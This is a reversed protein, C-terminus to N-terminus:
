QGLVHFTLMCVAEAVIREHHVVKMELENGHLDHLAVTADSKSYRWIQVEADYADEKSTVVTAGLRNLGHELILAAERTGPWRENSILVRQGAIRDSYVALKGQLFVDWVEAAERLEKWYSRQVFFEEIKGFINM